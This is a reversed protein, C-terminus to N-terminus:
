TSLKWEDRLCRGSVPVPGCSNVLSPTSSFEVFSLSWSLLSPLSSAPHLLSLSLSSLECFSLVFVVESKRKIKREEEELKRKKEFNEKEKKIKRGGRKGDNKPAKCIKKKGIKRAPLAISAWSVTERLVTRQNTLGHGLLSSDDKM